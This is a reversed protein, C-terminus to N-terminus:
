QIRSLHPSVTQEAIRPLYSEAKAMLTSPSIEFARSLALLSGSSPRGRGSEIDALYPYSVGALAALEKRSLGREARLVKVARGFAEYFSPDRGGGRPEPQDETVNRPM